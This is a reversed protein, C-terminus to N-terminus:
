KYKKLVKKYTKECILEKEKMYNLCDEYAYTEIYEMIKKVDEILIQGQSKNDQVIVKNLLEQSDKKFIYVTKLEHFYLCLHREDEYVNELSSFATAFISAGYLNEPTEKDVKHEHLYKQYQKLKLTQYDQVYQQNYSPELYPIYIETQSKEDFFHPAENLIGEIDRNFMNKREVYNIFNLTEQNELVFIEYANEINQQTMLGRYVVELLFLDFENNIKTSVGLAEISNKYESIRKYLDIKVLNIKDGYKNLKEIFGM